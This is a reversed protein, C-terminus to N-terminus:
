AIVKLITWTHTLHTLKLLRTKQLLSVLTKLNSRDRQSCNVVYPLELGIMDEVNASSFLEFKTEGIHVEGFRM